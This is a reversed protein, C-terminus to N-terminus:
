WRHIAARTSRCRLRRPNKAPSASAPKAPLATLSPRGV